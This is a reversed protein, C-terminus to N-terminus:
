MFCSVHPCTQSTHHTPPHLLLGRWRITSTTVNEEFWAQLWVVTPTHSLSQHRPGRFINQVLITSFSNSLILTSSTTSSLVVTQVADPLLYSVIPVKRHTHTALLNTRLRSRTRRMQEDSGNCTETM